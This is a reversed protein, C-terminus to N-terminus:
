FSRGEIFSYFIGFKSYQLHSRWVFEDSFVFYVEDVHLDLLVNDDSYEHQFSENEWYNSQM